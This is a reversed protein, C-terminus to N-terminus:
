GCLDSNSLIGLLTTALASFTPKDKVDEDWIGHIASAEPPIPIGPNIRFTNIEERSVPYLKVLSIEVIRDNVTDTGTIELNFFVLPRTLTLRANLKHLNKGTSSNMIEKKELYSQWVKLGFKESLAKIEHSALSNHKPNESLLSFAKALKKLLIEEKGTLKGSDFRSDLDNWFSSVEPIGLLIEFPM